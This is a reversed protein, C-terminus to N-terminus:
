LLIISPNEERDKSSLKLVGDSFAYVCILIYKSLFMERVAEKGKGVGELLHRQEIFGVKWGM